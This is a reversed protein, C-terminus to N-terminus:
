LRRCGFSIISTPSVVNNRQTCAYASIFKPWDVPNGNFTPLDKFSFVMRAMVQDPALSVGTKKTKDQIGVDHKM